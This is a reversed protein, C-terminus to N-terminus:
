HSFNPPFNKHNVYKGYLIRLEKIKGILWFIWIRHSLASRFVYHVQFDSWKSPYAAIQNQALFFGALNQCSFLFAANGEFYDTKWICYTKLYIDAHVLTNIYFCKYQLLDANRRICYRQYEWHQMKHPTFSLYVNCNVFIVFLSIFM